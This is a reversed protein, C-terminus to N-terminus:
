NVTKYFILSFYIKYMITNKNDEYEILVDEFLLIEAKITWYGIHLEMELYLHGIIFVILVRLISYLHIYEM